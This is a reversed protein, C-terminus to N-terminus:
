IGFMEEANKKLQVRVEEVSLGKIEAIKRIVEVSHLPENRKGRHPKPSVYPSDTEAHMKDLPVKEVLETYQPAFTIVGTFSITFGLDIIDKILDAPGVYFHFNGRLRDGAEEKYKQLIEVVDRYADRCHIMMPKDLEIALKIHEEFVRQQKEKYAKVDGDIHYYDLGTEGIAVVKEHEGLRKYDDYNFEPGENIYIPHLGIIAYFDENVNALKLVERSTALDIGVNIVGMEGNITREIVEDRDDDFAKFNLHAHIDIYKAKM